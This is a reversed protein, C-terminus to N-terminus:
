ILGVSACKRRESCDLASASAGRHIGWWRIAHTCPAGCNCWCTFPMERLNPVCAPKIEHVRVCQCAYFTERLKLFPTWAQWCLSEPVLLSIYAAYASSAASARSESTRM